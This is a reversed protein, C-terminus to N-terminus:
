NQNVAVSTNPPSPPVGPVNTTAAERDLEFRTWPGAERALSGSATQGATGSTMLHRVNVKRVLKLQERTVKGHASRGATQQGTAGVSGLPVLAGAVLGVLALVLLATWKVKRRAM